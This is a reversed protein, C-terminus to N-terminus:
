PVFSSCPPHVTCSALYSVGLAYRLASSGVFPWNVHTKYCKCPQLVFSQSLPADLQLTGSTIYLGRNVLLRSGVCVSFLKGEVAWHWPGVQGSTLCISYGFPGLVCARCLSSCTSRNSVCLLVPPQREGLLRYFYIFKKDGEDSLFKDLLTNICTLNFQGTPVTFLSVRREGGWARRPPSSPHSSLFCVCM